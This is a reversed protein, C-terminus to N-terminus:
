FKFRLGAPVISFAFETDVIENNKDAKNTLKSYKMRLGGVYELSSSLEKVVSGSAEFGFGSADVTTTTVNNATAEASAMILFLMADLEVPYGGFEAYYVGYPGVLVESSSAKNKNADEATNRSFALAGGIELNSSWQQGFKLYSINESVQEGAVELDLDLTPRVVWSGFRGYFDLQKPLTRFSTSPTDVSTNGAKRTASTMTYPLLRIGLYSEDAGSSSGMSGSGSMAVLTGPTKTTTTNSAKKASAFAPAVFSAGAVCAAATAFRALKM